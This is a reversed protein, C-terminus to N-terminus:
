AYIWEFGGASLRKGKCVLQIRGRDIGIKTEAEYATSFQGVIEGDKLQIIGYGRNENKGRVITQTPSEASILNKYPLRGEIASMVVEFRECDKIKRSNYRYVFEDCYRQTHKPSIQYYTGIIMRKFHSFSGEISNTHAVGKVYEQISHNVMLHNYNHTIRSYINTSDTMLASEREVAQAVVSGMEYKSKAPIVKAIMNGGREIIGLVATKNAFGNGNTDGLLKARKKTHMNGYKGGVFTEDAEVVGSLLPSNKERLSERIRMIVFWASKQTIGLDRALQCSSVGRKHSSLLYMAVMWTTLPINSAHFITGVTVSYKKYCESNACKFRKGNEINYSKKCGCYPCEPVGNWRQKVLFERCTEEDKFYQVAEKLNKFM